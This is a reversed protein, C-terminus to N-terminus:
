PVKRVPEAALYWGMGPRHLGPLVAQTALLVARADPYSMAHGDVERQVWLTSHDARHHMAVQYATM